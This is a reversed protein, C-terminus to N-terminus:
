YLNSILLKAKKMRKKMRLILFIMLLSIKIHIKIKKFQHYRQDIQYLNIILLKAKKMRKKMRLILFIM